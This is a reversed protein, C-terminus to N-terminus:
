DVSLGILEDPTGELLEAALANGQDIKGDTNVILMAEPASDLFSTVRSLQAELLDRETGAQAIEAKLNAVTAENINSVVHAVIEARSHLGLKGRIRVWYTVVTTPSVGLKNGIAKDTLGQAALELVKM